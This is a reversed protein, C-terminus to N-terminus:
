PKQILLADTIIEKDKVIDFGCLETMIKIIDYNYEREFELDDPFLRSSEDKARFYFGCVLGYLIKDFPLGLERAKKIPRVLRDDAGLKRKLDCGIRFVTDKLAKNQFRFLLDDIHEELQEATFADPYIKQLIAASQLMASRTFNYIEHEALLEYIYVAEPKKIYGYYAALAHGLNHIFLKRDVWAKMNDKAALEPVAPIPNKFGNRDLILENYPEAYVLLPDKEQVSHEMIPVMKGISTEILGVLKDLPYAAPLLEKLKERVYKDANHMNEALIIDLPTNRLELGKAITKLTNPLGNKGVSVAMIDADAIESIVRNTDSALVGRVNKIELVEEKLPRLNRNTGKIIVRYSRRTNLESIIREDIDIFVVEYVSRSFVQGIFSRGIKGAGFIVLKNM